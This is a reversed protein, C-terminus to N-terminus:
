AFLAQNIVKMCSCIVVDNYQNLEGYCTTRKYLLDILRNNALEVIRIGNKDTLQSSTTCHNTM